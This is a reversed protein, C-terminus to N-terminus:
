NLLIGYLHSWINWNNLVYARHKASTTTVPLIHLIQGRFILDGAMIIFKQSDHWSRNEYMLRYTLLFKIANKKFANCAADFHIIVPLMERFPYRYPWWYLPYKNQSRKRCFWPIGIAPDYELLLREFIQLPSSKNKSFVREFQSNTFHFTLDGDM